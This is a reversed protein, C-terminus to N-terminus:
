RNIVHVAASLRPARGDTSFILPWHVRGYPFIM